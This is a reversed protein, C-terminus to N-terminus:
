SSRPPRELRVQADFVRGQRFVKLRLSDGPRLDQESIISMIQDPTRVAKGNVELIVDGPKLGAREGPSNNAVDTVVVGRQAGLGLAFAVMTSIEDVELGTWFEREVRGKERLERVIRKITNVPIAFGIGINGSMDRSGSIIWTNMGIVEGLSNLLPGGSNGGNIQADTQIMDQYLRGNQEGFDMNVNSVVGVNVSPESNINFLGFPNGLAIVWEGRIVEDSNGLTVTPLDKGDIKLLAIDTTFDSGVLKAQYQKGGWLTIVIEVANHVVHENTVIYGDPSIIFGSGLSQVRERYRRPYFFDWFPDDMFMRRTYERVQIVNIGVVAPSAKAVARTIANERSATIQWQRFLALSDHASNTQAATETVEIVHTSKPAPQDQGCRAVLLTSAVFGAVFFAAGRATKGM